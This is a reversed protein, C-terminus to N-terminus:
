VEEASLLSIPRAIAETTEPITTATRVNTAATDKSLAAIHDGVWPPMESSLVNFTNDRTASATGGPHPNSAPHAIYRQRGRCLLVSEIRRFQGWQPQEIFSESLYEAVGGYVTTSHGM